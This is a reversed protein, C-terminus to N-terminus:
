LLLMGIYYNDHIYGTHNLLNSGFFFGSCSPGWPDAGGLSASGPPGGGGVYRARSPRAGRTGRGRPLSCGRTGSAPPAWALGARGRERGEAERRKWFKIQSCNNTNIM